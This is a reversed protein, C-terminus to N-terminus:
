KHAVCHSSSSSNVNDYNHSPVEAKTNVNDYNHSPVEAKTYVPDYNHSPVEAKTNVNAYNHSPVEAKTNVNAYNPVEGKAASSAQSDKRISTAYIHSPTQQNPGTDSTTNRTRKRRYMFYSLLITVLGVLLILCITIGTIIPTTIPTTPYPIVTLPGIKCSLSTWNANEPRISFCLFTVGDDLVQVSKQLRSGPENGAQTTNLEWDPREVPSNTDSVVPTREDIVTSCTLIDGENVVAPGDTFCVPFEETSNVTFGVQGNTIITGSGRAIIVCLYLGEDSQTLNTMTLSQSYLKVIENVLNPPSFSMRDDQTVNVYSSKYFRQWTFMHANPDFGAANCTLTVNGNEVPQVPFSSITVQSVQCQSPSPLCLWLFVLCCGRYCLIGM